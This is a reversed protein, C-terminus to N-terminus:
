FKCSVLKPSLVLSKKKKKKLISDFHLSPQNDELELGESYCKASVKSFKENQTGYNM